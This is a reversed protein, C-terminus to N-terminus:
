KNNDVLCERFDLIWYVCQYSSQCWIDDGVVMRKNGGDHWHIMRKRNTIVKWIEGGGRKESFDVWDDWLLCVVVRVVEVFKNGM